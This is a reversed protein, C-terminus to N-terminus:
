RAEQELPEISSRDPPSNTGDVTVIIRTGKGAAVTM